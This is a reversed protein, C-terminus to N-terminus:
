RPEVCRELRRQGKKDMIVGVKESDEQSREIVPGRADNHRTAALGVLFLHGTKSPKRPALPASSDSMVIMTSM